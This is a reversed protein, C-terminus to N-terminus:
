QNAPVGKPLAKELTRRLCAILDGRKIKLTPAQSVVWEELM